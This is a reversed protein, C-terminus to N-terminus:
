IFLVSCDTIPFVIQHHDLIISFALYHQLICGTIIILNIKRTLKMVQKPILYLPRLSNSISMLHNLTLSRNRRFSFKRIDTDSVTSSFGKIHHVPHPFLYPPSETQFIPGIPFYFIRQSGTKLLLIGSKASRIPPHQLTFLYFSPTGSMQKGSSSASDPM